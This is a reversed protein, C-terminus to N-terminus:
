FTLCVSHLSKLIQRAYPLFSPFYTVHNINGNVFVSVLVFLAFDLPLPSFETYTLKFHKHSKFSITLYGSWKNPTPILIVLQWHTLTSQHWFFPESCTCQVPPFILIESASLLGGFASPSLDTPELAAFPNHHFILWPFFLSVPDGLEVQALAKKTLDKRLM